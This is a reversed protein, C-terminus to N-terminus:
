MILRFPIIVKEARNKEKYAAKYLESITSCERYDSELAKLEEKCILVKAFVEKNESNWKNCSEIKKELEHKISDFVNIFEDRSVTYNIDINKLESSLKILSDSLTKENKQLSKKKASIVELVKLQRDAKDFPNTTVQSIPTDCAPCCDIPTFSMNKVASYLDVFNIEDKFKKVEDSLNNFLSIKEPFTMLSKLIVEIKDTPRLVVKSLKEIEEKKKIILGLSNDGLLSLVESILKKELYKSLLLDKRKEYGNLEIKKNEIILKSKEVEREKVKLEEEKLPIIPLKNEIAKNFGNCFSNFEELGFLASLRQQQGQPAYSSVRAFAEIRNREIFIFENDLPAQIAPVLNGDDYEVILSVKSDLSSTNNIYQGSDFRKSSAENIKGTLSYELAECFSSKGTGNLGYIFTFKKSLDFEERENFGRFGEVSLKILNKIKPKNSSSEVESDVYPSVNKGDNIILASLKNARAGGASSKSEVESFNSLILNALKLETDSMSKSNQAM